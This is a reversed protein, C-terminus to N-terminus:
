ASEIAEILEAKRLEAYREIDLGSAIERLEKVTLESLDESSDGTGSADPEESDDTDVLTFREKGKCHRKYTDANVFVTTGTTSNKVYPM